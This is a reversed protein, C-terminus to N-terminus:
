EPFGPDALVEEIQKTHRATHGAIFLLSQYADIPGFPSDSVHNRMDEESTNKIFDFIAERQEELEDLAVEPDTYVGTPQLDESAKAKKSRDEMGRILEEDSAKIESRREPSPEKGMLEITMKFIARETLIIHELVQSVSWRDESSKYRLQDESLGETIEELNDETEEFYNLLFEKDKIMSSEEAGGIQPLEKEQFSVLLFLMLLFIWHKM